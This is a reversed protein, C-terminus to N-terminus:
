IVLLFQSGAIHLVVSCEPLNLSPRSGNCIYSPSFNMAPNNFANGWFDHIVLNLCLVKLFYNYLIVILHKRYIIQHPM